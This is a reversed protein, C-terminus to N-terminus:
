CGCGGAWGRRAMLSVPALPPGERDPLADDARARRDTLLAVLMPTAPTSDLVIDRGDYVVDFRALLKDQVMAIDSTM